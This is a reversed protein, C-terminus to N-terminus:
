MGPISVGDIELIPGLICKVKENIEEDSLTKIHSQFVLRYGLKFINLKDNKFYDFLFIDKIM